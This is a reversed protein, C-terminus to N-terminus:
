FGSCLKGCKFKGFEPLISISISKPSYFLICSPFYNLSAFSSLIFAQAQTKVFVYITLENTSSTM